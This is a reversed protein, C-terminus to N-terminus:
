NITILQNVTPSFGGDNDKTIIAINYIGAASFIHKIQSESTRITVGEVQYIYQVIGGGFNRDVDYSAGADLLYELPDAVRLASVVLSSKPVLNWFTLLNLTAQRTHNLQDTATFTIETSGVGGPVFHVQCRNSNYPLLNTSLTDSRSVFVGFGHAFSYSLSTYFRDSDSLRLDVGYYSYNANSLKISDNHVQYLGNNWFINVLPSTPIQDITEKRNSCGWLLYLASFLILKRM